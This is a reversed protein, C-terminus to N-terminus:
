PEALQPTTSQYVLDSSLQMFAAENNSNNSGHTPIKPTKFGDANTPQVYKGQPTTEVQALIHTPPM